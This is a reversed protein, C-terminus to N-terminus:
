RWPLGLEKSRRMYEKILANRVREMLERLKVAAWEDDSM